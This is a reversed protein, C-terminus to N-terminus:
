ECDSLGFKSGAGGAGPDMVASWFRWLRQRVEQVVGPDALAPFAQSVDRQCCAVLRCGRVFCRGLTILPLSM